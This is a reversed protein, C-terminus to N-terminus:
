IGLIRVYQYIGIAIAMMTIVLGFATKLYLPRVRGNLWKGLLVGPVAVAIFSALLATDAHIGSSFDGLVSALSKTAIITLSTGVARPMDVGALIVLSPVILFGGGAGVIGTLIGVILGAPFLRRYDPRVTPQHDRRTFMSLGAAFMTMSFFMMVLADRTVTVNHFRLVVDPIWNTLCLRAIWTGLMCPVGFCLLAYLDVNRMIVSRFAGTAATAGVLISTYATALAPQIHFLYVLVPLALISGGAGIMGLCVGMLSIVAYGLLVDM